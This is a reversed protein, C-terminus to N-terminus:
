ARYACLMAIGAACLSALYSGSEWDAGTFPTRLLAPILFAVLAGAYALLTTAKTDILDARKGESEVLESVLEYSSDLTSPDYTLLRSWVEHKDM